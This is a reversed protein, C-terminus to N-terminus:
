WSWSLKFYRCVRIVKRYKSLTIEQQEATTDSCGEDIFRLSRPRYQGVRWRSSIAIELPYRSLLHPREEATKSSNTRNHKWGAIVVFLSMM